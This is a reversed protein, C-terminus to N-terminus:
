GSLWVHSDSIIGQMSQPMPSCVRDPSSPKTWSILAFPGESALLLRGLDLSRPHLGARAARGPGPLIHVQGLPAQSRHVLLTGHSSAFSFSWETSKKHSSKTLHNAQFGSSGQLAMQRINKQATSGWQPREPHGDSVGGPPLDPFWPRPSQGPPSKPPTM